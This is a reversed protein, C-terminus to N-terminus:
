CVSRGAREREKAASVIATSACVGAQEREKAVSVIATSACVGAQEREGESYESYCYQCM